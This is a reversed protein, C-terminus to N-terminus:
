VGWMGGDRRALVVGLESVKWHSYMKAKWSWGGLRGFCVSLGVICEEESAVRSYWQNRRGEGWYCERGKNTKLKIAKFDTSVHVESVEEGGPGNIDFHSMHKEDFPQFKSSLDLESPNLPSIPKGNEDVRKQCYGSENWEPSQSPVPGFTGIYQAAREEGERFSAFGLLDPISWRDTGSSCFGAEIIFASICRLSKIEKPTESWLLLHHPLM